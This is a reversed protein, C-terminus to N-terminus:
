KLNYIKLCKKCSVEEKTKHWGLSKLSPTKGCLATKFNDGGYVEEVYHIVRKKHTFSKTRGVGDLFHPSVM